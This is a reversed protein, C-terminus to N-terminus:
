GNVDSTPLLSDVDRGERIQRQSINALQVETSLGREVLRRHV